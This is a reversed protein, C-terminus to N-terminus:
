NQDGKYESGQKKVEDLMEKLMKNEHILTVNEKDRSLCVETERRLNENLIKVQERLQQSEKDLHSHEKRLQRLETQAEHLDRELSKNKNDIM